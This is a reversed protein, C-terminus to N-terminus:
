ISIYICASSVAIHNGFRLPTHSNACLFCNHFPLACQSKIHGINEPGVQWLGRDSVFSTIYLVPMSVTICSYSVKRKGITKSVIFDLCCTSSGCCGFFFSLSCPSLGEIRKYFYIYNNLM